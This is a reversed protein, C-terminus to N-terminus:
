EDTVKREIGRVVFIGILICTVLAFLLSYLFMYRSDVVSIRGDFINAINFTQPLKLFNMLLNEIFYYVLLPSSIIVFVNQIKLSVGLAILSLFSGILGRHIALLVFYGIYNGSLLVNANAINSFAETSGTNLESIENVSVAGGFFSCILMYVLEGVILCFAGSIATALVKSVAYSRKGSRMIIPRFYNTKYDNSFSNAYPIACLVYNLLSFTSFTAMSHMDFVTIESGYKVCEIISDLTGLIYFFVVLLSAMLFNKSLFARSFDSLLLRFFRGIKNM